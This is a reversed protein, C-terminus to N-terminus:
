PRRVQAPQEPQVPCGLDLRQTALEGLQGAAAAASLQLGRQGPRMGGGAGLREPEAVDVPVDPDVGAGPTRSSGSSRASSPGSRRAVTTKSRPPSDAAVNAAM